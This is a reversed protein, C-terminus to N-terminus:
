LTRSETFVPWRQSSVTLYPQAVDNGKRPLFSTIPATLSSPNVPGPCWKRSLYRQQSIMLPLGIGGQTFPTFCTVYRTLRQSWFTEQETKCILKRLSPFCETIVTRSPLPILNLMHVAAFGSSSSPEVLLNWLSCSPYQLSPASIWDKGAYSGESLPTVEVPPKCM